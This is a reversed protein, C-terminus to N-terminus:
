HLRLLSPNHGVRKWEQEKVLSELILQAIVVVETLVKVVGAVVAVVVVVVAVETGLAVSEAAQTAFSELVGVIVM